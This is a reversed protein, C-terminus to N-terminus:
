TQAYQSPTTIPKTLILLGVGKLVKQIQGQTIFQKLFILFSVEPATWKVYTVEDKSIYCNEDNM